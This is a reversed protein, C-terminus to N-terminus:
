KVNGHCSGHAMVASGHAKMATGHCQQRGHRYWTVGSPRGNISPRPQVAMASDEDNVGMRQLPIVMMRRLATPYRHTHPVGVPTGLYALLREMATGHYRGHCRWPVYAHCHWSIESQMCHGDTGHCWWPTAMPAGTPTMVTGHCPMSVTM